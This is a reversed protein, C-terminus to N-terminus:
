DKNNKQSDRNVAIDLRILGVTWMLLSISGSNTEPLLCTTKDIIKQM